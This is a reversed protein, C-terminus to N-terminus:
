PAVHRPERDRAIGGLPESLRLGRDRFPEAGADVMEAAARFADSTTNDYCFRGTDTVLGWSCCQAVDASPPNEFEKVLNWVIQGTAAATPEHVLVDGFAVTDPHHDIVM